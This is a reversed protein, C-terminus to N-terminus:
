AALALAVEPMALDSPMAIGSPPYGLVILWDTPADTMGSLHLPNKGKHIGRPFVRHNHWVARLALMGTNLTRHVALHPRMISHYREVASSVHVADDWVALLVRAAPRWDSPLSALIDTSSWRLTRRHRWAWALVAQRDPPLVARLDHQVQDVHAVFTLLHPLREHLSAHLRQIMAQQPSPATDAVESLLALVAELETQRQSADLVGRADYVVVALLNRLENTLYAVGDAIRRATALAQAHDEGSAKPKRGRPRQGAALRAARREAAPRRAELQTVVRQLRAQVQTCTHMVHWTDGQTTIHPTVSRCAALMPAGGDLVVREWRLGRAQLEWLVLIWSETDVALPGESAWVAGSHVDVVNLYAGRRDNAYIEDLALARTSDPVHTQMWTRARQGAEALITTITERSVGRQLVEAMAHQIGRVSAHSIWLTLVQRPTMDSSPSVDTTVPPTFASLLAVQAQDRWAYLTPRSVQYERSMQMVVGYEHSHALLYAACQAREAPTSPHIQGMHDERTTQSTTTCSGDYWPTRKDAPRALSDLLVPGESVMDLFLFVGGPTRRRSGDQFLMGGEAEIRETEAIMEGIIDPGLHNYLRRIHFLAIPKEEHLREAILTIPNQHLSLDGPASSAADKVVITDTTLVQVGYAYLGKRGQLVRASVQQGPELRTTGDALEKKHVFISGFRDTHIFGHTYFFTIVVGTTDGLVLDTDPSRAPPQQEHPSASLRSPNGDDTRVPTDAQSHPFEGQDPHNHNDPERPTDTM